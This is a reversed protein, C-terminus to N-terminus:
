QRAGPPPVPTRTLWRARAVSANAMAKAIEAATRARSPRSEEHLVDFGTREIAALAARGGGVFGAVALRQRGPLTGALPAGEDLLRRAREVEFAMLRRVRVSANPGGLDREDVGFRDLDELPLYIRGRRLDQGVDQWHEVLQLGTCVRDSLALRAPTAAGLVALVLRGVPDASLACYAVLDSFTPYRTVTQDQRNAEILRRFPERPLDHRRITPALRVFIPHTPRGRFALDLELELGDLLALRRDPGLAGEDGTDDVLRAFGYIALLDARAGRPLIRSAVPFNEGRAKAMVAEAEQIAPERPV